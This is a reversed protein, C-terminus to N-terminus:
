IGNQEQIFRCEMCSDLHGTTLPVSLAEFVHLLISLLPSLKQLASNELKLEVESDRMVASYLFILLFFFIMLFDFFDRCVFLGVIIYM